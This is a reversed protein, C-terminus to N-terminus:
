FLQFIRNEFLGKLVGWNWGLRWFRDCSLGSFICQLVGFGCLGLRITLGHLYMGNAKYRKYVKALGNGWNYGHQFSAKRAAAFSHKASAPYRIHVIANQVFTLPTGLLQIRLCYDVDELHTMNEDFGAVMEHLQRKVGLGCGGAFPLFPVRFNQLSSAQVTSNATSNLLQYDFCSAVFDHEHFADNLAALWQPSVVDDADCFALYEGTAAQAGKNRAHSAGRQGSADILQLNPLRNKYQEVIAQSGDTSGNDAVIVEWPSLSQNCLADLQQCITNAANFCPIIVSIKKLTSPRSQHHM